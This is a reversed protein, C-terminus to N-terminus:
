PRSTKKISQQVAEGVRAQTTHNSQLLLRHTEAAASKLDLLDHRSHSNVACIPCIIARCQLCCLKLVEEQHDACIRRKYQQIPLVSHTRSLRSNIHKEQCTQCLLAVCNLCGFTAKHPQIGPEDCMYCEMRAADTELVSQGSFIDKASSM